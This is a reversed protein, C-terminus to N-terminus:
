RRGLWAEVEAAGEPGLDTWPVVFPRLRVDSDAKAARLRDVDEPGTGVQALMANVPGMGGARTWLVLNHVPRRRPGVTTRTVLVVDDVETWSRTGVIGNRWGIRTGDLVVARRRLAWFLGITGLVMASAITIMVWRGPGEAVFALGVAFLDIFVIATHGARNWTAARLPLVLPETM